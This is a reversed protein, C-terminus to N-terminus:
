EGTDKSVRSSAAAPPAPIEGPESVLAAVRYIAIHM